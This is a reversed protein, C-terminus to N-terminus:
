KDEGEDSKRDLWWVIALLLIILALWPAAGVILWTLCGWVALFALLKLVQVM